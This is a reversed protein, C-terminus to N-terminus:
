ALGNEKIEQTIAQIMEKYSCMPFELDSSEPINEVRRGMKGGDNPEIAKGFPKLIDSAIEYMSKLEPVAVAITRNEIKKELLVQITASVHRLYTPPFKWANDYSIPKGERLTRIIRNFPRDNHTNTSYGFTVSLRLINYGMRANKAHGEGILKTKGYQTVPEIAGLSSIYIIKANNMNAAEVVNETGSANTATAKHPNKECRGRSPIAAAHIILDPNADSITELVTKRDTIDLQRLDTFFKNRQFTGTVDHHGRLDEFIRAGVYGSAGTILIKM